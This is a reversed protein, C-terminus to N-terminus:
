VIYSMHYLLHYIIHHSIYSIYYKITVRRNMVTLDSTNPPPTKVAVPLWHDDSSVCWQSALSGWSLGWHNWGWVPFCHCWVPSPREENCIFMVCDNISCIHERVYRTFNLTHTHTDATHDTLHTPPPTRLPTHTHSYSWILASTPPWASCVTLPEETRSDDCSPPFRDLATSSDAEWLVPRFVCVCVSIYM